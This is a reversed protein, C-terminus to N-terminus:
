ELKDNPFLKHLIKPIYNIDPIIFDPNYFELEERISHGSLVAISKIKARQAAQVDPILDGVFAVRSRDIKPYNIM